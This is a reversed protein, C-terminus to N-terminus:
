CRRQWTSVELSAANKLGAFSTVNVADYDFMELRLVTDKELVPLYKVQLWFVVFAAMTLFYRSPPQVPTPQNNALGSTYHRVQLVCVCCVSATDDYPLLVSSCSCTNAPNNALYSASHRALLRCSGAFGCHIHAMGAHVSAAWCVRYAPYVCCLPVHPGLRAGGVGRRVLMTSSASIWTISRLLHLIRVENWEPTLSNNIVRTTRMDDKTTFLEVFPDSKGAAAAGAAAAAAFL